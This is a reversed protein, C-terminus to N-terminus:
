SSQGRGAVRHILDIAYHFGDKTSRVSQGDLRQQMSFRMVSGALVVVMRAEDDLDSTAAHRGQARFRDIVLATLREEHEVMRVMQKTFLEPTRSIVERRALMLARDQEHNALAEAMLSVLDSLVDPTSAAIFREMEEDSVRPNATGLIVGEKSGFYNFFTRQSVMSAECIMEVTVQDYGQELVLAMATNEISSQTAARKKARLGGSPSESSM